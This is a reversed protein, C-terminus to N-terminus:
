SKALTKQNGPDVEQVACLPPAQGAEGRHWVVLVQRQPGSRFATPPLSHGCPGFPTPLLTRRAGEAGQRPGQAAQRGPPDTGGVKRLTTEYVDARASPAPRRPFGLSTPSWAFWGRGWCCWPRAVRVYCEFLSNPGPLRRLDWPGRLSNAAEPPGLSPSPDTRPWRHIWSM